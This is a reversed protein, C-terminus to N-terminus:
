RAKTDIPDSESRSRMHAPPAANRIRRKGDQTQLVSLIHEAYQGLEPVVSEVEGAPAHEDDASKLTCRTGALLADLNPAPALSVTTTAEAESNLQEAIAVMVHDYENIIDPTPITNVVTHWLINIQDPRPEYPPGEGIVIAAHDSLSHPSDWDSMVDIRASHGRAELEQKLGNAYHYERWELANEWSPAPIKIAIRFAHRFFESLLIMLEQARHKYTHHALVEKRLSDVLVTRQEEDNLYCKLLTELEEPTSYTPLRNEFVEESGETANTLVLAGAALADFVRSNVSGWKKTAKNADDVVIRTSGYVQPMEAYAVFGKSYPSLTAHEAWGQGYLAFNKGINKPNLASEIDRPDNWRNGTFCYDSDFKTLSAGATFRKANTAIRFLQAPKGYETRIFECAKLSSCLYVDYDDFWSQEAWREFWNRMWAIRLLGPPANEINQLDYSDVMTVLVDVGTVDYWDRDGGREPLFLCEYGFENEISTALEMATFYDGAKADSGAESVAFGIVPSRDSWFRNGSILDPWYLRKLAYGFRKTLAHTNTETREDSMSKAVTLRTSSEDHVIEVHKASVSFKGLKALYELCLDIDEYGYDYDTYFGGLELFEDRRCLMAAGTVAPFPTTRDQDRNSAIASDVNQPRLIGLREDEDFRIGIHQLAGPRWFRSRPYRLHAGVVGIEQSDLLSLM